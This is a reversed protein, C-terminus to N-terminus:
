FDFATAKLGGPDKSQHNIDAGNDILWQMRSTFAIPHKALIMLATDGFFNCTNIDAGYKVALKMAHSNNFDKCMEVGDLLLANFNGSMFLRYLELNGSRYLSQAADNKESLYTDDMTNITSYGLACLTLLLLKKKM